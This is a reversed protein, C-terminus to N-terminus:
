MKEFIGIYYDGIDGEEPWFILNGDKFSIGSCYGFYTYSESGYGYTDLRFSETQGYNYEGTTTVNIIKDSVRKVEITDGLWSEGPVYSGDYISRAEERLFRYTGDVCDGSGPIYVGESDVLFGDCTQGDVIMAGDNGVYYKSQIWSNKMMWGEGDFYYWKGDILEWQNVSYTGDDRQYGTQGYQGYIWQGALATLSSMVTLFMTAAYLRSLKM